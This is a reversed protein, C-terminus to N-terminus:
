NLFIAQLPCADIADEIDIINEEDFAERYQLKGNTDLEFNTPASIACQGHNQCKGADVVIKMIVRGETALMDRHHSQPAKSVGLGRAAFSSTALPRLRNQGLRAQVQICGLDSYAPRFM